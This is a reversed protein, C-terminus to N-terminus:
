CGNKKKSGAAAPKKKSGAAAPKKKSGAAAPKKKSGAAAPKKELRAKITGGKQGEPDVPEIWEEYVEFKPDPKVTVTSNSYRPIYTHSMIQGNKITYRDNSFREKYLGSINTSKGDKLVPM